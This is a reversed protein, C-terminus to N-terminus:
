AFESARTGNISLDVFKRCQIAKADIDFNLYCVQTPRIHTRQETGYILTDMRRYHWPTKIVAGAIILRLIPCISEM